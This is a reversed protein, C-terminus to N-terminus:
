CRHHWTKEFREIFLKKVEDWKKNEGAIVRGYWILAGKDLSTMLDTVREDPKLTSTWQEYLKIWISPVMLKDEGTFKPLARERIVQTTM